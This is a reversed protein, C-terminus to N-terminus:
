EEQHYHSHSKLVLGGISDLGLGLVMSTYDAQCYRFVM